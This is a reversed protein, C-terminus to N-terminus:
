RDPAIRMDRVDLEQAEQGHEVAVELEIERM